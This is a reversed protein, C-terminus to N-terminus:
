VLSPYPINDYENLIGEAEMLTKKPFKNLLLKLYMQRLQIDHRKSKNNFEISRLEKNIHNIQGIILAATWPTLIIYTKEHKKLETTLEAYFGSTEAKDIIYKLENLEDINNSDGISLIKRIQEITVVETMNLLKTAEDKMANGIDAAFTSSQANVFSSRTRNLYTNSHTKQNHGFLRGSQIDDDLMARTHAIVKLNIGLTNGTIHETKKSKRINKKETRDAKIATSRKVRLMHAKLLKIFEKIHLENKTGKIDNFLKKKTLTGDLCLMWLGKRLLHFDRQKRRERSARIYPPIFNRNVEKTYNNSNNILDVWVSLIKYMNDNHYIDTTQKGTSRHKIINTIQITKKEQNWLINDDLNLNQIGTLQVRDSALLWEMLLSEDLTPYILFSLSPFFANPRQSRYLKKNKGSYMVKISDRKTASSMGRPTDSVLSELYDTIEDISFAKGDEIYTKFFIKKSILESFMLENIHPIEQALITEILVVALKESYKDQPNSDLMPFHNKNSLPDGKEKKLQTLFKQLSNPLNKNILFRTEQMENIFWLATERLGILLEFDNAKKDIEPYIEELTSYSNYEQHYYKGYLRIHDTADNKLHKSGDTLYGEKVMYNLSNITTKISGESYGNNIMWEKLDGEFINKDNEFIEPNEESYLFKVVKELSYLDNMITRNSRKRSKKNNMYYIALRLPIVSKMGNILKIQRAKKDLTENNFPLIEVESIPLSSINSPTNKLKFGKANNNKM